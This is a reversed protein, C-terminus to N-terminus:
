ENEADEELNVIETIRSLAEEYNNAEIEGLEKGQFFVYYKNSKKKLRVVEMIEEREEQSITPENLLFEDLREIGRVDEIYIENM